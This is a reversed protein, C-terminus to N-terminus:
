HRQTARRQLLFGGCKHPPLEGEIELVILELICVDGNAFITNAIWYLFETPCLKIYRKQWTSIMKAGRKHFINNVLEVQEFEENSM